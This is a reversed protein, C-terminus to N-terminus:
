RICLRSCVNESIPCTIAFCFQRPSSFKPLDVRIASITSNPRRLFYKTPDCYKSYAIGQQAKKEPDPHCGSAIRSANAKLINTLPIDCIETTLVHPQTVKNNEQRQSRSQRMKRRARIELSTPDMVRPTMKTMKTMTTKTMAMQYPKVSNLLVLRCVTLITAQMICALTRHRRKSVKYKAVKEELDGFVMLLDDLESQTTERAEKSESLQKEAATKAKRAEKTAEEAAEKSETLQKEAMDKAEKAASLELEM